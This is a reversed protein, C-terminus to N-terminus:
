FSNWGPFWHLRPLATNSAIQRREEESPWKVFEEYLALIALKVRNVVKSITGLGPGMDSALTADTNGPLVMFRLFVVLQDWVELQNCTSNNSFVPNDQILSVLERFRDKSIHLQPMWEAWDPHKTLEPLSQRTVVVGHRSRLYHTELLHQRYEIVHSLLTLYEM